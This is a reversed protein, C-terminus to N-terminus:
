EYYWATEGAIYAALINHWDVAYGNGNRSFMLIVSHLVQEHTGSVLKYFEIRNCKNCDDLKLFKQFENVKAM